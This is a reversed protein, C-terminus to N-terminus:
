LAACLEAASSVTLEGIGSLIRGEESPSPVESLRQPRSQGVFSTSLPSRATLSKPAALTVTEDLTGWEDCGPCKGLWKASEYGCQRCIYKTQAKGM